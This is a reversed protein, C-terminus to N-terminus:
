AARAIRLADLETLWRDNTDSSFEFGAPLEEGNKWNTEGWWQHEPKIVFMDDLRVTHRAEDTSILCEHLKEGPRIGTFEIECGPAIAKALDVVSMSPIRPIFVEGGHMQEIGKIVIDVGQPLTLWFRTM